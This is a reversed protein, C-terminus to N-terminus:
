KRKPDGYPSNGYYPGEYTAPRKELFAQIGERCDGTRTIEQIAAFEKAWGEDSRNHNWYMKVLDKAYRVSLYPNSAVQAAYKLTEPLLDDHPFVKEVLGIELAEDAMIIKGTLIM